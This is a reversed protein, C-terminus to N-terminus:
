QANIREMMYDIQGDIEAVVLNYTLANLLLTKAEKKSVDIREAIHNILYNIVETQTYNELEM